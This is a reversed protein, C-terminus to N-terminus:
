TTVTLTSGTRTKAVRLQAPIRTRLEAVHSVIGVARGGDRLGDLVEMVEDLTDEDLTGFGEDVFLTGIETGGAEATVVDALGLALSLSTIFTEGGSLTGPERHRGTWGDIVRLGLGGTGHGRSGAAKDVTHELSYRTGSMRALRENAAAVVQELRAALVYASLRMRTRNATPDGSTLAAVRAALEHHEAAPRWEAARAHLERALTVLRSRRDTFRDRASAVSQHHEEAAGLATELAALDPPPEAAAARLSPDDLLAAVRAEEDDHAKVRRALEQRAPDDLAAARAAEASDFGEASAAASAEDSATEAEAAAARLQETAAATDRLLAAEHDLRRVRAELTPDDGRAADIRDRLRGAEATLTNHQTQLAALATQIEGHRDRAEDFDADVRRLEDEIRDIDTEAGALGALDEEAAALASALEPEPSSGAQDCAADLEASLRTVTNGTEERRALAADYAAATEAEAEEGPGEIEAHAPSPHSASGCVRCPEGESLEKALSAAMGELRAQRIEQVVDRAAQAEDVAARHAAEAEALSAALFDRRRAAELRATAEAVAADAAPLAAARTRAQDLQARLLDRHAPSDALFLALEAERTELDDAEDTLTRLEAGIATLRTEDERRQALEVLEDRRAREEKRMLDADADDPLLGGLAARRRTVVAAVEDRRAARTAATQLRPLVRGAREAARLRGTLETREDAREALGASRRLADAHREQREAVARANDLLARAADRAAGADAAEAATVATLDAAHGSLETVWAALAPPTLEPRAAGAAEAARDAVSEAAARLEDAARGSERRREALWTEVQAFVETAFLKELVGRREEAGARLFAAFDGQPLLVVQCFQEASMGLLDTVFQGAEDFRTSWTEWAGGRWEQLLVKAKEETTGQGRRKPREWKPSRTVKFRRGRITVDLVVEPARDPPAHQSRLDKADNRVSPVRGYLAFCVADLVSTKGAGTPGNILFLGAGSLAEFDVTQTGAYPGFATITLSHLRM